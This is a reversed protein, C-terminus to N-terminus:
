VVAGDDKGPSGWGKHATSRCEKGCASQTCVWWRPGAELANGCRGCKTWKEGGHQMGKMLEIKTKKERRELLEDATQLSCELCVARPHKPISNQASAYHKSGNLIRWFINPHATLPACKCQPAKSQYRARRSRGIVLNEKYCPM